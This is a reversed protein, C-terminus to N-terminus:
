QGWCFFLNKKEKEKAKKKTNPIVGITRMEGKKQM